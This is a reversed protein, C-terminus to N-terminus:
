DYTGEHKPTNAATMAPTSPQAPTSHRGVDGDARRNTPGNMRLYLGLAVAVGAAVLLALEQSVFNVAGGALFPRGVVVAVTTAAALAMVRGSRVTAVTFLAVLLPLAMTPPLDFVFFVALVGALAGVPHRRRFLIAISSEVLGLSLLVLHTTGRAPGARLAITSVGVVVVAVVPVWDAPGLSAMWHTTRHRLM